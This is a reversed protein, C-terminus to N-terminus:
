GPTRTSLPQRAARLALVADVVARSLADRADPDALRQLDAASLQSEDGGLLALPVLAEALAPDDFLAEWGAADLAVAQLFGACWDEADVWERGGDDAVSFIPEWADVDHTLVRDLAHLHRLVLLTARKRQKESAFPAAPTAGGDGGWVAPLWEASRRRPGPPPGVLLATLYGDLAEVNMAADAPLGQLLADLAALEDDGLPPSDITPDYDPYQM